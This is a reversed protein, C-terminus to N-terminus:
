IYKFIDQNKNKIYNFYYYYYSGYGYMIPLIAYKINQKM